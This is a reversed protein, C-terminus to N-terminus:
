GRHTTLRVKFKLVQIKVTFRFKLSFQFERVDSNLKLYSSYSIINKLFTYLLLNIFYFFVKSFM